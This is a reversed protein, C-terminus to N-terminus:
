GARRSGEVAIRFPHVEAKFVGAAIAPDANTFTAAAFEDAAEFVCIGLTEPGTTDTRGALRVIGRAANTRLYAFHAGVAAEEAPTLGRALMDDRTPRILYLFQPV